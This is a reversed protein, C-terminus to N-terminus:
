PHRQPHRCCVGPATNAKRRQRQQQWCGYAAPVLGSGPPLPAGRRGKAVSGMMGAWRGFLYTISHHLPPSSICSTPRRGYVSFFTRARTHHTTPPPPTPHPPIHRIPPGVSVWCLQGAWGGAGGWCGSGPNACPGGRHRLQEALGAPPWRLGRGGVWGDAWWGPLRRCAHPAVCM